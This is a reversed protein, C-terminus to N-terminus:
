AAQLSVPTKKIPAHKVLLRLFDCFNLITVSYGGSHGNYSNNWV